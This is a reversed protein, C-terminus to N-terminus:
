FWGIRGGLHDALEGPLSRSTVKTVLSDLTAPIVADAPAVEEPAVTLHPLRSYSSSSSQIAVFVVLLRRLRSYPPSSSKLAVFVVKLHPFCTYPSSSSKLAVFIATHHPLRSYPSSPSHLALFVIYPSLSSQIALFVVTLHPLCSYPSSSSLFPVM